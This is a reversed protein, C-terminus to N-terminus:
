VNITLHNSGSLYNLTQTYTLDNKSVVENNLEEEAFNTRPDFTQFFLILTHVRMM